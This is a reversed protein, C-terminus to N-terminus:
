RSSRDDLHIAVKLVRWLLELLEEGLAFLSEFDDVPDADFPAIRDMPDDCRTEHHPEHLAHEVDFQGLVHSGEADDVALGRTQDGAKGLFLLEEAREGYPAARPRDAYRDAVSRAGAAHRLVVEGLEDVVGEVEHHPEARARQTEDTCRSGDHREETHAEAE